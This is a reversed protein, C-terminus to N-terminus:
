IFGGTTTELYVDKAFLIESNSNVLYIISLGLITNLYKRRM